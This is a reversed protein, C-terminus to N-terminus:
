RNKNCCIYYKSKLYENNLVKDEGYQKLDEFVIDYFKSINKNIIYGKEKQSNWYQLPDSNTYDIGKYVKCASIRDCISEVAYKYPMLKYEKNNIWYEPHHKNKKKHHEWADSKGTLKRCVATPSKKGDFYKVGESFEIYSYKSLDHIIGQWYLGCKFCLRRVEKRHKRIMKYHNIIKM